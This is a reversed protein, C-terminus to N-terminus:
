AKDLVLDVVWCGRVHPGSGRCHNLVDDSDCGADQLADALIPMRDFAGDADIGTALAVVDPTLWSADAAVPRFPNGFIDRLFACQLRRDVAQRILAPDAFYEGPSMWSVSTVSNNRRDAERIREQQRRVWAWYKEEVAEWAARADCYREFERLLLREEVDRTSASRALCACIFLGVKRGLDPLYYDSELYCSGVRRDRSKRPPTSRRLLELMPTPDACAMWEEETM